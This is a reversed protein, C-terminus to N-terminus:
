RLAVAREGPRSRHQWRSHRTRTRNGDPGGDASVGPYDVGEDIVLIGMARRTPDM